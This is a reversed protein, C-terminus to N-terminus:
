KEYRKKFGETLTGSKLDDIYEFMSLIEFGTDYPTPVIDNWETLSGSEGGIIDVVHLMVKEWSNDPLDSFNMKSNNEGYFGQSPSCM